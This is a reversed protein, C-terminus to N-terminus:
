REDDNYFNMEFKQQDVSTTTTTTTPLLENSLQNPSGPAANDINTFTGDINLNDMAKNLGNNKSDGDAYMPPPGNNSKYVETIIQVCLYQAQQVSWQPGSIYIFRNCTGPIVEHKNSVRINAGTSEQMGRVNAGGVGLIAGICNNPVKFSRYVDFVHM